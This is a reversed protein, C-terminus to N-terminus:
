KVAPWRMVGSSSLATWPRKHSSYAICAAPKRPCRSVFEVADVVLSRATRLKVDRHTKEQIRLFPPMSRASPTHPVPCFGWFLHAVGHSRAPMKTAHCAAFHQSRSATPTLISGSVPSQVPRRKSHDSGLSFRHGYITSPADCPASGSFVLVKSHILKGWVHM